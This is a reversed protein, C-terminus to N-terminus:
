SGAKFQYELKVAGNGYAQTGTVKGRLDPCSASTMRRAPSTAM